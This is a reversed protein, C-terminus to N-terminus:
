RGDLIRDRWNRFPYGVYLIDTMVAEVSGEQEISRQLEELEKPTTSWTLLLLFNPINSFNMPLVVRPGHKKRLLSIVENKDLSPQIKTHLMAFIDRCGCPFWQITFHVLGDKAMRGMHRNISRTSVGLEKAVDSVSKRSDHHLSRIISLDMKSLPEKNSIPQSRQPLSMIGIQPDPIQGVTRILESLIDLESIDRLVASIFLMNGSAVYAGELYNSQGLDSITKEMTQSRSRGFILVNISHLAQSTPLTVYERIIGMERMTQMRRHVAQLSIDLNAALDRYPTRSNRMLLMSLRLDMEDM